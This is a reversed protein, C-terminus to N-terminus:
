MTYYSILGIIFTLAVPLKVASFGFGKYAINAFTLVIIVPYGIYLMPGGTLKLVEDLGATSLPICLLLTIILSPVYGIRNRFIEDKLYDAFVASLAISTSLCAMFVATTVILAGNIGAIKIAIDRFLEASNGTLHWGHYAGVIAMGIYIIGLISVGIAGAKLGILARLKPKSEYDAGMTNKLITLVISSFFISSLLDLTEYGRRMNEEFITIASKGIPIIFENTSIGKVIIVGLSLLLLPSIVYGLLKIINNEKYATIFTILLFIICFIFASTQNISKLVDFPMFPALMTHSVTIIRPIAILPGIILMCCFMLLSGPIRGLRSFFAHYNGDFLIMSVLGALPLLVATILFGLIGIFLNTGSEIGAIIPYILNGAGFFMSFIALGISLVGTRPTKM